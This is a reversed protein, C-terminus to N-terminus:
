KISTIVKRFRSFINIDCLNNQNAFIHFLKLGIQYKNFFISQFSLNLISKITLRMRNCNETHFIIDLLYTKKNAPM